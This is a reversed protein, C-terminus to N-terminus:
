VYKERVRSDVICVTISEGLSWRKCVSISRLHQGTLLESVVWCFVTGTDSESLIHVCILSTKELVEKQKIIQAKGTASTQPVPM